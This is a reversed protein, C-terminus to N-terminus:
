WCKSMDIYYRMVEFVHSASPPLGSQGHGRPWSRKESPCTEASQEVVCSPPLHECLKKGDEFSCELKNPFLSFAICRKSRLGVVWSGSSSISWRMWPM